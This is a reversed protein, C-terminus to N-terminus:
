NPRLSNFTESLSEEIFSLSIIYAIVVLVMGYMFINYSTRLLKYKRALVVGLFYVDDILNSYLFNANEMLKNMGWHYDKRSMKHFNGFFLLNTRQNEIDDRTFKGDSVNPRLSLIAYILSALNVLLLLVTPYYLHENSDLKSMLSGMVVSMIISNISIMINAKSDAMGSLDLHNRSTLRFMTEIGREPRGEVKALKKKMAKLQAMTVGLDNSLNADVAKQLKNLRKELKGKLKDRASLLTEKGYATHFEYKLIRELYAQLGEVESQELKKIALLEKNLSKLYEKYDGVVMVGQRADVLVKEINNQPPHGKQTALLSKLVQSTKGKPYAQQNLFDAAIAQSAEHHEDYTDRYGTDHFWAAVQVMELEEESLPEQEGILNVMEVVRETHELNHWVIEAPLQNNLIETCHQAVNKLLVNNEM